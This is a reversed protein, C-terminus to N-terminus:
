GHLPRDLAKLSVELMIEALTPHAHMAEALQKVTCGLKMALTAEAILDSAHAGVLHVGLIRGNERDSVVKGQGAIQGIVHAKGLNRFLVSDSRVDYGQGRAQVETLGVNAVEPITFATRPVIDYNMVRGKGMGNEAAVLGETSAVHALMVKSPGLVDGIAYVDSVNTEMQENAVIWGGEDMTVGIKELGIGATIPRRGICILITDVDVGSPKLDRDKVGKATPSPVVTVRCRGEAEEVKEVTRGVMFAIKRKKMERELVKSCDEDVWPLPLMRSLAEVVTVKSGLSTFIFAFECGIVGGGLILMSEPIEDISLAQNTSIIRRGDFPFSPVELQQSGLALILSEWPVELMTGDPLAVAARHTGEIIGKGVLYRIKHHKFLKLVGDTQNKIVTQKRAVLAKMNPRITGHLDIGFEQARRFKELMEATTKMVKSPICGWNLCTGGVAEQEIITVEAGLQAARIAAVYGGPGAGIVTIKKTM